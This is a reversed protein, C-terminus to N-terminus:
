YLGPYVLVVFIQTWLVGSHYYYKWTEDSRILM